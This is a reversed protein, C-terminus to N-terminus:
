RSRRRPPFLPASSASRYALNDLIELLGPPPVGVVLLEGEIIRLEASRPRTHFDYPATVLRDTLHHVRQNRSGRLGKGDDLAAVYPGDILVDAEALLNAVHPSPPDERLRGLRYGTFCIVSLDRLRRALRVLEALGEAQMMPEGGSITIGDVAPDALLHAALRAPRVLSAVRDPIWDPAICGACRFPCGQVWVVSRWGPGLARTGVCVAAVNLQIRRSRERSDAEPLKGLERLARSLGLVAVIENPSQLRVDELLREAAEYDRNDLAQLGQRLKDHSHAM